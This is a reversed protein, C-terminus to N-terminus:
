IPDCLWPDGYDYVARWSGPVMAPNTTETEGDDTPFTAFDPFMDVLTEGDYVRVLNLSDATYQWIWKFGLRHTFEEGRLAFYDTMKVTGIGDSFNVTAQNRYVFTYTNGFNDTATGTVVDWTKIRKGGNPLEQVLARKRRNSGNDDPNIEYGVPVGPCVNGNLGEPPPFFWPITVNRLRISVHEPNADPAAFASLVVVLLLALAMVIAVKLQRRHM